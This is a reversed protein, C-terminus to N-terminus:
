AIERDLHFAVAVAQNIYAGSALPFYTGFQNNEGGKFSLPDYVKGGWKVISQRAYFSSYNFYSWYNLGPNVILDGDGHLSRWDMKEDTLNLDPGIDTAM